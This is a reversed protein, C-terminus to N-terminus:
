YLNHNITVWAVHPAKSHTSLLKTLEERSRVPRRQQTWNGHAHGYFGGDHAEWSSSREVWVSAEEVVVNGSSGGCSRRGGGDGGCYNRCHNFSYQTPKWEELLVPLVSSSFFTPKLRLVHLPLYNSHLESLFWICLNHLTTFYNMCIKLCSFYINLKIDWLCSSFCIYTKIIRKCYEKTVKQTTPHQQERSPCFSPCHDTSSLSCQHGVDLLHCWQCTLFLYLELGAAVSVYRCM